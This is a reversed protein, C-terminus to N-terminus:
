IGKVRRQEEAGDPRCLEEWPSARPVVDEVIGECKEERRVSEGGGAGGARDVFHFGGNGRGVGFAEHWLPTGSLGSL